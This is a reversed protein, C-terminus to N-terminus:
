RSFSGTTIKTEETNSAAQQNSRKFMRNMIEVLCKRVNAETGFIKYSHKTANQYGPQFIICILLLLM